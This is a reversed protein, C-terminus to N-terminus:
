VESWIKLALRKNSKDCQAKYTEFPLHSTDFHLPQIHTDRSVPYSPPHFSDIHFSKGSFFWVLVFWFMKTSGWNTSQRSTCIKTPNNATFDYKPYNTQHLLPLSPSKVGFHCRVMYSVEFDLFTHVSHMSIPKQKNTKYLSPTYNWCKPFYLEM